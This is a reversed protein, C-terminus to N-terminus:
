WANANRARHSACTRPDWSESNPKGVCTTRKESLNLTFSEPVLFNFSWMRSGLDFAWLDDLFEGDVQGGYLFFKTGCMTVAHGYRGAPATSQPVM